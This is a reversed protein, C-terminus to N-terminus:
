LHTSKDKIEGSLKGFTMGLFLRKTSFLYFVNRVNAKKDCTAVLVINMYKECIPATHLLM